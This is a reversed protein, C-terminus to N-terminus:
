LRPVQKVHRVLSSQLRGSPRVRTGQCPPLGTYAWLRASIYRRAHDLVVKFRERM